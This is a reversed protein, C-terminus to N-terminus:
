LLNKRFRLPNDLSLTTDVALIHNKTYDNYLKMFNKLNINPLHNSKKNPIKMTFYHTANLRITKPMECYSQLIFVLSINLKRGRLFM